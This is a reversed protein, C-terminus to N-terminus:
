VTQAMRIIIVAIIVLISCDLRCELGQITVVVVHMM